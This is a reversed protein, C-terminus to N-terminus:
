ACPEDSEGGGRPSPSSTPRFVFSATKGDGGEQGVLPSPISKMDTTM